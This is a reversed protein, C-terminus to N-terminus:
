GDASCVSSETGAMRAEGGRRLDRFLLIDLHLVGKVKGIGGLRLVREVSGLVRESAFLLSHKNFPM